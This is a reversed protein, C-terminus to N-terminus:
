ARIYKSLIRGVSFNKINAMSIPTLIAVIAKKLHYRSLIENFEIFHERYFRQIADIRDLDLDVVDDLLFTREKVSVDDFLGNKEAMLSAYKEIFCGKETYIKVILNVFCIPYEEFLGLVSHVVAPNDSKSLAAGLNDKQHPNLAANLRPYTQGLISKFDDQDVFPTAACNWSFITLFLIFIIM